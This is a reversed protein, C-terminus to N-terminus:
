AETRARPRAPMLSSDNAQRKTRNPVRQLRVFLTQTALQSLRSRGHKKATEAGPADCRQNTPVYAPGGPRIVEQCVLLTGIGFRGANGYQRFSGHRVVKRRLAPSSVRRLTLGSPRRKRRRKLMLAVQNVKLARSDWDALEADLEEARRRLVLGIEELEQETLAGTQLRVIRSHVCVPKNHRYGFV